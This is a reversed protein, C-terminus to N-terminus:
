FSCLVLPAATSIESMVMAMVTAEEIDIKLFKRSSVSQNDNTHTRMDKGLRCTVNENKTTHKSTHSNLKICDLNYSKQIEM